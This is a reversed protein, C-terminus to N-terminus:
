DLRVAEGPDAPATVVLRRQAAAMLGAITLGPIAAVLADLQELDVHSEGREIRRYTMVSVVGGTADAIQEQTLDAARRARRLEARIAHEIPRLPSASTRAAM